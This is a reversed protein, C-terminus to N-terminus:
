ESRMSARDKMVAPARPCCQRPVEIASMQSASPMGESVECGHPGGVARKVLFQAPNSDTDAVELDTLTRLQAADRLALVRDRVPAHKM